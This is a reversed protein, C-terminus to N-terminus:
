KEPFSFLPMQDKNFGIITINSSGLSFGIISITSRSSALNLISNQSLCIRLLSYMVSITKATPVSGTCPCSAEISYKKMVKKASSKEKEMLYKPNYNAIEKVKADLNGKKLIWRRIDGDTIAAVFQKNRIVFLVKKSVRDLQAMAELMTCEEDILFDKVDM